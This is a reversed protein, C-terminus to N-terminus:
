DRRALGEFLREHDSARFDASCFSLEGWTDLGYACLLWRKTIGARNPLPGALFTSRSDAVVAADPGNLALNEQVSDPSVYVRRRSGDAVVAMLTQGLRRAKGEEQIYSRPIPTPTGNLLCFSFGASQWCADSNAKLVVQEKSWVETRVEFRWGRPTAPDKVLEEWAHRGSERRPMFSPASPVHRGRAAPNPSAVTRTWLWATVNADGGGHEKPLRVKPYLHGIKEQARARILRGYHRVDAALGHSGKWAQEGGIRRRDDPNVPPRGAWRPALELNCKNLLVAVPNLDAAHAELGLRAAELPISGGGAFPDLVHPLKGDVHRLMEKRAEDYVEPHEHLKKGMLTRVIDFLEERRADQEAESKNKWYPDDAPDTVVSGFLVARATPLPLRAWWHHIGKPHPGIGPMKDYSSADNIEPLPLAVEILKRPYVASM